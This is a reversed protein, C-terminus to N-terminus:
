LLNDRCLPCTQNTLVWKSICKYHFIHNCPLKSIEDEKEYPELCVVCEKDLLKDENIISKELTPKYELLPRELVENQGQSYSCFHLSFVFFVFFLLSYVLSSGDQTNQAQIDIQNYDNINYYEGPGMKNVPNEM